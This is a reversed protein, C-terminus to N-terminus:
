KNESQLKSPELDNIWKLTYCEAREKILVVKTQESFHTLSHQKHASASNYWCLNQLHLLFTKKLFFNFVEEEFLMYM